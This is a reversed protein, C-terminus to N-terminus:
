WAMGADPLFASHEMLARHWVLAGDIHWAMGFGAIELVSHGQGHTYCEFACRSGREWMCVCRYDKALVPVRICRIAWAARPRLVWM